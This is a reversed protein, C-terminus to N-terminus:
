PVIEARMVDKSLDKGTADSSIPIANEASWKSSEPPRLLNRGKENRDESPSTDSTVYDHPNNLYEDRCCREFCALRLTKLTHRVTSRWRVTIYILWYGGGSM